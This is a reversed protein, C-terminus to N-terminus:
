LDTAAHPRRKETGEIANAHVGLVLLLEDVTRVPTREGTDVHEVHGLLAGHTDAEDVLRVVYARHVRRFTRVTQKGNADARPTDM